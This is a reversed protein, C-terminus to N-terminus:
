NKLGFVVALKEIPNPIFDVEEFGCEQLIPLAIHQQYFGVSGIIGAYLYGTEMLPKMHRQAFETICDAVLSEVFPHRHKTFESFRAIYASGEVGSYVNRLVMEVNINGFDAVFLEQCDAPMEHYLFAKLISKGIHTGSGEDALIYGLSPTKFVTTEGDFGCAASGTGLIGVATKGKPNKSAICAAMLDTDVRIQAKPFIESLTKRMKDAAFQEGCGTGFFFLETIAAKDEDSFLLANEGVKARFLTDPMVTPNFGAGSFVESVGDKLWKCSTSGCDAILRM